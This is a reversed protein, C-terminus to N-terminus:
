RLKERRNVLVRITGKKLLSILGGEFYLIVVIFFIGMFIWWHKTLSSVWDQFLVYIVAGLVPGLFNGSGGIVTMLVVNLSMDLGVCSTVVFKQLLVFLGGALGALLGSASFAVLRTMFVNYGLFSARM